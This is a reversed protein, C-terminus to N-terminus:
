HRRRLLGASDAEELIATLLRRASATEDAGVAGSKSSVGPVRAIMLEGSISYVGSYRQGKYDIPLQTTPKSMHANLVWAPSFNLGRKATCAGNASKRLANQTRSASGSAGCHAGRSPHRVAAGGTPAAAETRSSVRGFGRSPGGRAVREELSIEDFNM